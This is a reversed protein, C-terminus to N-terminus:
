HPQQYTLRKGEIGKVALAARERDTIKRHVRFSFYHDLRGKGAETLLARYRDFVEQARETNELRSFGPAEGEYPMHVLSRKAADSGSSDVVVSGFGNKERLHNVIFKDKEGTAFPVAVVQGERGPVADTKTM